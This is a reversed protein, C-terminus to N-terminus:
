LLTRWHVCHSTWIIPFIFWNAFFNMNKCLYLPLGRRTVISDTHYLQWNALWLKKLRLTLIQISLVWLRRFKTCMLEMGKYLYIYFCKHIEGLPSEGSCHLFLKWVGDEQYVFSQAKLSWIVKHFVCFALYIDRLCKVFVIFFQFFMVNSSLSFQIYSQLSISYVYCLLKQFLKNWCLLLAKRHNKFSFEPINDM